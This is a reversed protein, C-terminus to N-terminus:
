VKETYTIEITDIYSSFGRNVNSLAQEETHYLAGCDIHGRASTFVNIWRSLKRPEKFEKWGDHVIDVISGRYGEQSLWALKETVALCTEVPGGSYRYKKGVEFKTM